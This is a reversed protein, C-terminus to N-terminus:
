RPWKLGKPLDLIYDASVGYYECLAKLKPVTMEQQQREYKSVQHQTTQLIRAIENQSIDHDERLEKLKQRYSM